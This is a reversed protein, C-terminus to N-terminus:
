ETSEASGELLEPQSLYRKMLSFALNLYHGSAIREDMVVGLPLCRVLEVSGDRGRKPIERMNGMTIAVSTTGFEYVHHYIHNCRISALNSILFSAHFPSAKVLAKPLLGFHDLFRLLSIAVSMLGSMGTLIRMWRDLSNREGEQRNEAIYADLKNQVVDVTDGPELYIKSMTDGGGPKLVVMSVSIETHEYIKHTASIFRNLAPYEEIARLYATILLALHSIRKGERRRNMMYAHLPEEPINLTVMNMSESRKVLFYPILHYMPDDHRIRKGDVRM